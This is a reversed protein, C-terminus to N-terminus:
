SSTVPVYFEPPLYWELTAQGESPGGRCRFCAAAGKDFEIAPTGLLWEAWRNLNPNHGVVAVTKANLEAIREATKKPKFTDPELDGWELPENPRPNTCALLPLATERARVLTSCVLADCTWGRSALFAALANATARGTFTLMREADSEAGYTGLLV